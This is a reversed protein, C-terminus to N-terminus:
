RARAESAARRRRDARRAADTARDARRACCLPAPRARPAAALSAHPSWRIARRTDHLEAALPRGRARRPSGSSAPRPRPSDAAAARSGRRRPDLVALLVDKVQRRPPCAAPTSRPTCASTPSACPRTPTPRRADPAHDLRLLLRDLLGRGARVARARRRRAADDRDEGRPEFLACFEDGGMRFSARRPRRPLGEPQAGLRALLVDGAPHGFTDNYHKFGDLDFLALM